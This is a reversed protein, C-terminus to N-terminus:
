PYPTAWSEGDILLGNAVYSIAHYWGALVLIELQQQTNYHDALAQWTQESVHATDHLEDVAALLAQYQPEWTADGTVTAQVPTLGVHEAYAAAHVGWEYECGCRACVRAIVIERDLAPLTGHGLLGAGLVRMRSALQPHHELIRFLRLPEQPVGPPMWKRLAEEVDADYPPSLPEIRSMTVGRAESKSGSHHKPFLLALLIM